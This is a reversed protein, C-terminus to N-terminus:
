AADAPEPPKTTAELRALTPDSWSADLQTPTRRENPALRRFGRKVFTEMFYGHVVAEVFTLMQMATPPVPALASAAEAAQKYDALLQTAKAMHTDFEAAIKKRHRIIKRLNDANVAAEARQEDTKAQAVVKEQAKVAAHLSDVESHHTAILANVQDLRKRAKDDGTHAALALSQREDGLEVGRQKLRILKSDLDALVVTAAELATVEAKTTM